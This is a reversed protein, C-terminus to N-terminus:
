WPPVPFYALIHGKSWHCRHQTSVRECPQTSKNTTSQTPLPPLLGSELLFVKSLPIDAARRSYCHLTRWTTALWSPSKTKTPKFQACKTTVKIFENIRM